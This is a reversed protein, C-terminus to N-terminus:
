QKFKIDMKDLLSKHQHIYEHRRKRRLEDYMRILEKKTQLPVSKSLENYNNHSPHECLYSFGLRYAYQCSPNEVLCGTLDEAIPVRICKEM